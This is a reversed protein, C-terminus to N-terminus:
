TADPDIPNVQISLYQDCESCNAELTVIEQHFGDRPTAVERLAYMEGVWRCEKQCKPCRFTVTLIVSSPVIRGKRDSTM